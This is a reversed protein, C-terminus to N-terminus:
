GWRFARMSISEPSVFPTKAALNSAPVAGAMRRVVPIIKLLLPLGCAFIVIITKVHSPWFGRVRPEVPDSAIDWRVRPSGLLLLLVLVLLVSRPRRQWLRPPPICHGERTQMAWAAPPTMRSQRAAARRHQYATELRRRAAARRQRYATELRRRAAAWRQRYATEATTKRLM